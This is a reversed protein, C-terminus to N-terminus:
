RIARKSASPNSKPRLRVSMYLANGGDSPVQHMFKECLKQLIILGM